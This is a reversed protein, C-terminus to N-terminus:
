GPLQINCYSVNLVRLYTFSSLMKPHLPADYGGCSLLLLTRMHQAQHFTEPLQFSGSSEISVVVDGWYENGWRWFVRTITNIGKLFARREFLAWCDDDALGKLYYSSVQNPDIIMAVKESRTTVLIKSGNAGGQFLPRLKDWKEEDENWVDDFVILFRKNHLIHWFKRVKETSASISRLSLWKKPMDYKEELLLYPHAKNTFDELFDVAQDVTDKLQSIWIRVVKDTVQRREANEVVAQIMPLIQEIRKFNEMLGCKQGLTQLLPSALKEFIVQLLPPLVLEAM